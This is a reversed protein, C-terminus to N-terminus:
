MYFTEMSEVRCAPLVGVDLLTHSREQVVDADDFHLQCQWSQCLRNLAGQMQGKRLYSVFVPFFLLKYLAVFTVSFDMLFNISLCHSFCIPASYGQFYLTEVNGTFLLSLVAEFGWWLLCELTKPYCCSIHYLLPVWFLAQIFATFPSEYSSATELTAKQVVSFPKLVGKNNWLPTSSCLLWPPSVCLWINYDLIYLDRCAVEDWGKM